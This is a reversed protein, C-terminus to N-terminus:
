ENRAMRRSRARGTCAERNRAQNHLFRRFGPANFRACPLRDRHPDGMALFAVAVFRRPPLARLTLSRPLLARRQDCATVSCLSASVSSLPTNVLRSGLAIAADSFRDASRLLRRLASANREARAM